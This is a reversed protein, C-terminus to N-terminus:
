NSERALEGGEGVVSVVYSAGFTWTLEVHQNQESEEQVLNEWIDGQHVWNSRWIKASIDGFFSPKSMDSFNFDLFGRLRNITVFVKRAGSWRKNWLFILM